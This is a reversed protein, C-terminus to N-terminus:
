EINNSGMAKGCARRILEAAFMVNRANTFEQLWVSLCVYQAMVKPTIEHERSDVYRKCCDALMKGHVREDKSKADLSNRLADAAKWDRLGTSRRPTFGTDTRGKIWIWCDCDTYSLLAKKPLGMAVLKRKCETTHLSSLYQSAHIQRWEYM